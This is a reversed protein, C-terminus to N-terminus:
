VLKSISEIDVNKLDKCDKELDNIKNENVDKPQLILILISKERSIEKYLEKLFLMYKKKKNNTVLHEIGDILVISM